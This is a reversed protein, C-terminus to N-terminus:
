SSAAPIAGDATDPDGGDPAAALKKAAKELYCRSSKNDPEYKLAVTYAEMAQRYDGLLFHALGLRAHAKSYTPKLALARESDLIAQDFKKMSLLAAARNSFYVHSQPGSPSIRLAQTYCDSALDYEKKQMHANGQSKLREADEQAQAEAAGPVLRQLVPSEHASTYSSSSEIMQKSLSPMLTSPSPSPARVAIGSSKLKRSHLVRKMRRNHQFDAIASSVADAGGSAANLDVKAALKNRFKSIVKSMREDYIAKKLVLREEEEAPDDKPTEHDPDQFFGKAKVASVFQEFLPSGVLDEEAHNSNACGLPPLKEWCYRGM